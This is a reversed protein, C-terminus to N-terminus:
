EDPAEVGGYYDIKNIEFILKTKNRASLKYRQKIKLYLSKIMIKVLKITKSKLASM